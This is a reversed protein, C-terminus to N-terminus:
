QMRYLSLAIALPKRLVQLLPLPIRLSRLADLSSCALTEEM